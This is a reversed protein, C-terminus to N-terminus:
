QHRPPEGAGTPGTTDFSAIWKCQRSLDKPDIHLIEKQWGIGTSELEKKLTRAATQKSPANNYAEVSDMKRCLADGVKLSRQDFYYEAQEVRCYKDIELITFGHNSSAHFPVARVKEGRVDL